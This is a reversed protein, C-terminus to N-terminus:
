GHLVVEEPYFCGKTRDLHKHDFKIILRGYDIGRVIGTGWSCKIRKGKWIDKLSRFDSKKKDSIIEPPKPAPPLPKTPDYIKGVCHLSQHTSPYYCVHGFESSHHRECFIKRNYRRVTKDFSEPDRAWVYRDNYKVIQAMGHWGGDQYHLVLGKRPSLM